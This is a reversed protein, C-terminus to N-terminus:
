LATQLIRFTKKDAEIIGAKCLKSIEVSLGSREVELFDALEQRNYPITVIDSHQKKAQMLLYSMLKDKTSRKATIEIKENFILNKKAMIKMLNYIMQNHFACNNCCTHTIHASEMLLVEADSSAVVSVPLEDTEACAFTEGFLQAPEVNAVISRNGYYDERIIQASGSLLIGMRTAPEGESLIATNKVVRRPKAQMCNVMTDINNDEIDNFLPCERLTKFYKEM